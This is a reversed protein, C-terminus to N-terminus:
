EEKKIEILVIDDALDQDDSLNQAISTEKEFLKYFYQAIDEPTIETWVEGETNECPPMLSCFVHQLDLFSISKVFDHFGEFVRPVMRLVSDYLFDPFSITFFASSNKYYFKRVYYACQPCWGADPNCCAFNPETHTIVIGCGFCYNLKDRCDSCRISGPNISDSYLWFDVLDTKNCEQCSPNCEQCIKVDANNIKVQKGAELNSLSHCVTCSLSLLECFTTSVVSPNKICKIILDKNIIQNVTDKLKQYTENDLSHIHKMRAYMSPILGYANFEAKTININGFDEVIELEDFTSNNLWDIISTEPEEDSSLEQATSFSSIDSM